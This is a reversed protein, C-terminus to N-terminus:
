ERELESPDFDLDEDIDVTEDCDLLIQQKMKKTMLSLLFKKFNSYKNATYIRTANDMDQMMDMFYTVFLWNKNAAKDPITGDTGFLDHSLEYIEKSDLDKIGALICAFIQAKMKTDFIKNNEYFVCQLISDTDIKEIGENLTEDSVQDRLEKPIDDFVITTGANLIKHRYTRFHRM